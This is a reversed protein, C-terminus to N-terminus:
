ATRPGCGATRWCPLSPSLMRRTFGPSAGRLTNLGGDMERFLDAKWVHWAPLETAPEGWQKLHGRHHGSNTLRCRRPLAQQLEALKSQGARVARIVYTWSNAEDEFGSGSTDPYPTEGEMEMEYLFEANYAQAGAYALPNSKTASCAHM